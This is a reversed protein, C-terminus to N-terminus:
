FCPLSYEQSTDLLAELECRIRDEVVPTSRVIHVHAYNGDGYINDQPFIQINEDASAVAISKMSFRPDSLLDTNQYINIHRRTRPHRDSLWDGPTLNRLVFGVARPIPDITVLLEIEHGRRGATSQFDLATAGGNSYGTVVTKPRRFNPILPAIQSLQTQMEEHCALASDLGVRQNFGTGDYYHFQSRARLHDDSEDVLSDHIRSYLNLGNGNTRRTFPEGVEDGRLNVAGLSIAEKPNFDSFGDFFFHFFEPLGQNPYVSLVSPSYLPFPADAGGGCLASFAIRRWEIGPPCGYYDIERSANSGDDVEVRWGRDRAERAARERVPHDACFEVWAEQQPAPLELMKEMTQNVASTIVSLVEPHCNSQHNGEIGARSLTKSDGDGGFEFVLNQNQTQITLTQAALNPRISRSFLSARVPHGQQQLLRRLAREETEIGRMESQYRFATAALLNPECHAEYVECDHGPPCPREILGSRALQQM